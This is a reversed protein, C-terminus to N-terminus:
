AAHSTQAQAKAGSLFSLAVYRRGRTVPMAEHLLSASFV